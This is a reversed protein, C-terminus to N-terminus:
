QQEPCRPIGVTFHHEMKHKGDQAQMTEKLTVTPSSSGPSSSGPSSQFCDKSKSGPFVCSVTNSLSGKLFVAASHNVMKFQGATNPFHRQFTFRLLTSPLAVVLTGPLAVVLSGPTCSCPHRPTCDCSQRSHWQLVAQSHLQLLAQSHM